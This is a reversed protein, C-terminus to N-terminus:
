ELLDLASDSHISTILEITEMDLPSIILNFDLLLLLELELRNLEQVHIGGVKAFHSNTYFTDSLFKVAITFSTIILRHINFSNVVLNTDDYVKLSKLGYKGALKQLYIIIALLCEPDCPAFKVIRNLYSEVSVSPITKAHFHPIIQSNSFRDNHNIIHLLYNSLCQVATQM